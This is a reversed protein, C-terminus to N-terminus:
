VSMTTFSPQVATKRSLRVGSGYPGLRLTFATTHTDNIQELSGNNAAGEGKEDVLIVDKALNDQDPEQAQQPKRVRMLGNGVEPAPLDLRARM